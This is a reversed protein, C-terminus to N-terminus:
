ALDGQSPGAAAFPMTVSPAASRLIALYAAEDPLLAEMDATFQAVPIWSRGTMDFRKVVRAPSGVVLSFPPVDRTVLARAGLVSGHGVTLSGLLTVDTGLWCNTGVIQRGDTTVGTMIYPQFPDSYVHDAGLFRCGPGLLCYDGLQILDGNSFFNFRGVYVNDGIVIRPLGRGNNVNLTSGAGIVCNRGIRVSRWALVHVDRDVLTGAGVNRRRHLPAALRRRIGHWRLYAARATPRWGSM